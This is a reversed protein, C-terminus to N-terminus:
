RYSICGSTFTSHECVMFVVKATHVATVELLHWVRGTNVHGRVRENSRNRGSRAKVQEIRRELSTNSGMQGEKEMGPRM